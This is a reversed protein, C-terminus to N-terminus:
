TRSDARHPRVLAALRDIDKGHLFRRSCLESAIADLAPRKVQLANMTDRLLLAYLYDADFRDGGRRGVMHRCLIAAECREALSSGLRQFGCLLEAAFGALIRSAENLLVEDPDDARILPLPEVSRIVGAWWMAHGAHRFKWIRASEVAMGHSVNWVFHGSEHVATELRPAAFAEPGQVRMAEDATAAFIAKYLEIVRPEAGALREPIIIRAPDLPAIKQHLRM